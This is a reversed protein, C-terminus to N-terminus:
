PTTVLPLYITYISDVVTIIVTVPDSLAQGDSARYNFSDYGIFGPDPQYVFSGDPLLTLDGNLPLTDTIATLPDGDVDEDNALLGPAPIILPIDETTTYHDGAAVPKDNVALVNLTVTVTQSKLQGDSANYTFNDQGNFNHTPSYIFSGDPLLTLDGNLPLTDTIATLPDGDVDEDNALLGPAPIILPIDETTTYHDGAAIPKDNAAQVNLTVTVTDSNLHGDAAHYTFSDQGNFNHTPTYFFAGDLNLTLAGNGPDSDLVATLIGGPDASDNELVGPADVSFPLDETPTFTDGVAIPPARSILIVNTASDNNPNTDIITTTITTTNTVATGATLTASIQGTVIIQGWERPSLSEVQWTFPISGTPSVHTSVIFDPNIIASPISDTIVVGMATGEGTNSFTLTYTIPQGPLHPAPSATKSISLDVPRTVLVPQYSSPIGNVFVTVLAPGQPFPELDPAFFLTDTYRKTPDPMLWRWQENDTRRLLVLPYNTPSSNFLGYSGEFQNLFGSGELVVPHGVVLPSTPTHLTPQWAPLYGLGPNFREVSSTEALPGVGQGGIILVTGDALFATDHGARANSLSGTSFWTGLAPDYIEVSTLPDSNEGGAALVRGDSLLTATHDYRATSLSGTSTWGNSGPDFIEVSDLDGGSGSGGAVLVQGNPLLTATHLHRGTTMADVLSWTGNEPDFVEAASLSGGAGDEGGAVLVRGDPLLTATHDYRGGNMSGTQEFQGYAPDFIEATATPTITGLGGAILVRGDALLTSTHGHRPMHMTNASIWRDTDPNYLEASTLTESIVNQGGSVLVWGEVLLTAAHRRRPFELPAAQSWTGASPDFLEASDLAPISDGQGGSVLVRGDPLTTAQHGARADDLADTVGWGGDAPDYLEASGHFSTGRAGGVILVQGNPMLTATQSRRGLNLDGTSSWTGDNPNYLETLAISSYGGVVLVQGNPLLTATHNERAVAMDEAPTWTGEDPDYIEASTYSVNPNSGGTVLVTGDHLLTATPWIRATDMSGTPSWTGQVPDYIEATALASYTGFTGGVVLVRGDLLLVSAHLSRLGTLSGTTTWNESDPDYIETTTVMGSAQIINDHWIGGTVLVRGDNLMTATHRDRRGNLPASEIWSDNHPDYTQTNTMSTLNTGLGGAVLVRGDRLMTATHAYLNSLDAAATWAGTAQDYTETGPGNDRVGGIFLVRGDHMLTATHLNRVSHPDSIRTWTGTEAQVPRPWLAVLFCVSFLLLSTGVVTLRKRNM